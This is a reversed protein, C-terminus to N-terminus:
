AISQNVISPPPPVLVPPTYETLPVMPWGSAPPGVVLPWYETMPPKQAKGVATCTVFAGVRAIAGTAGPWAVIEHVGFVGPNTNCSVHTNDGAFQVLEGLPEVLGMVTGAVNGVFHKRSNLGHDKFILCIVQMVWVELFVFDM